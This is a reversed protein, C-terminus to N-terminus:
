INETYLNELLKDAITQWDRVRTVNPPLTNAQNWPYDGFLYTEIGCAAVIEAHHVHDDIFLDAGIEQCVQSKSRANPSMYHTFSISKFVAPFYTEALHTIFQVHEPSRGTVLHFEHNMALEQIIATTTEDPVADKIFAESTIITNIRAVSVTTDPVGWLSPDLTYFDKLPVTTGYLQNYYYLAKPATSILVDDCDVAITRKHM